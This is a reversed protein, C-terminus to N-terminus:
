GRYTFGNIPFRIGNHPEPMSPHFHFGNSKSFAHIKSEFLNKHIIQLTLIKDRKLVSFTIVSSNKFQVNSQLLVEVTHVWQKVADVINPIKHLRNGILSISVTDVSHTKNFSNLSSDDCVISKIHPASLGGSLIVSEPLTPNAIHFIFLRTKSNLLPDLTAYHLLKSGCRAMEQAEHHSLEGIPFCQQVMKPDATRYGGSDKYFNLSEAHLLKAIVAATYDSGGRGFLAVENRENIGYFGPVVTFRGSFKVKLKAMNITSFEVTANLSENTTRLPIDEPLVMNCNACYSQIAHTIWLASFREGFSLLSAKHYDSQNEWFRSACELM